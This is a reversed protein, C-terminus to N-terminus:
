KNIERNDSRGALYDLSVDFYDALACMVEISAARKGKEMMSISKGKIGAINGLEEQKLKRETRLEFIRKSFTNRLFM